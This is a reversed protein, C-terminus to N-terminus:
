VHPSLRSPPPAWGAKWGSTRKPLIGVATMVVDCSRDTVCVAFGVAAGRPCVTVKVAVTFFRPGEVADNTEYVAPSLPPANCDIVELLPPHELTGVGWQTRPESALPAVAVM